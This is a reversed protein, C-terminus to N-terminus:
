TNNAPIGNCTPYQPNIPMWLSKIPTSNIEAQLKHILENSQDIIHPCM